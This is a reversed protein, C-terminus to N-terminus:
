GELAAPLTFFFTSGQGFESEVAISGHHSEVIHKCIGM